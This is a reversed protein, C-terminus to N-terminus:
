YLTLITTFVFWHFPYSYKCPFYVQEIQIWRIGSLVLGFLSLSMCIPWPSPDLLHFPHQQNRSTIVNKLIGSM